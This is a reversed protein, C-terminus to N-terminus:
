ATAFRSSIAASPGITPDSNSERLPPRSPVHDARGVLGRRAVDDMHPIRAAELPTNGGLSPQPEDACGDPIVLAFKM